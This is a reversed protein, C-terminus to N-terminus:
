VRGGDFGNKSFVKIAAKLISERTAQAALERVGPKREETSTKEAAAM